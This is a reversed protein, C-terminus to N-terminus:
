NSAVLHAILVISMALIIIVGWGFGLYNFLLFSLAIILAIGGYCIVLFVVTSFFEKWYKNM